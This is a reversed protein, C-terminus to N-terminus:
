SLNRCNNSHKLYNRTIRSTLKKLTNNVQFISTKRGLNLLCDFVKLKEHLPRKGFDM